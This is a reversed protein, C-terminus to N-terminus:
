PSHPLPRAPFSVWLLARTSPNCCSPNRRLEGVQSTTEGNNPLISHPPPFRFPKFGVVHYGHEETEHTAASTAFPSIEMETVVSLPFDRPQNSITARQRLLSCDGQDTSARRWTQSRRSAPNGFRLRERWFHSSGMEFRRTAYNVRLNGVEFQSLMLWIRREMPPRYITVDM